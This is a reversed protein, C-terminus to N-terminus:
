HSVSHVQPELEDELADLEQNLLDLLQAAADLNGNSLFSFVQNMEAEFM